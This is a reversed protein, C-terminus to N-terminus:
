AGRGGFGEALNRAAGERETLGLGVSVLSPRSRTRSPARRRAVISDGAPSCDNLLDNMAVAGLDPGSMLCSMMTGAMMLKAIVIKRNTPSSLSQAGEMKLLSGPPPPEQSPMEHSTGM